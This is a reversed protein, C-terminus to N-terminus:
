MNLLFTFSGEGLLYLVTRPLDWQMTNHITSHKTWRDTGVSTRSCAPVGSSCGGLQHGEVVGQRQVNNSLAAMQGQLSCLHNQGLRDVHIGIGVIITEFQQQWGWDACGREWRLHTNYGTTCRPLGALHLCLLLGPFCLVALLIACLASFLHQM